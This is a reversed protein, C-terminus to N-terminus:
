ATPAVAASYYVMSGIATKDADAAGGASTLDFINVRSGEVFYTAIGLEQGYSFEEEVWRPYAAWARSMAQAGFFVNDAVAIPQTNNSRPVRQSSYIIVGDWMGAAGTFLPNNVGRERADRQAQAWSSDDRKLQMVAYPHMALGFVEEGNAMRIPEIKHTVQAYAKLETLSALTPRGTANTDVITNRSTAAGAFWKNLTPIVSTGNGSLEAFLRDDLVGALWKALQRQAAMRMDHNIEVETLYTWRVGHSLMAVTVPMQRFKLKEENGELAVTDGTIGAGTLALVLDINIQDGPGRSLEDKRIVPMGSGEPGEWQSWYTLNEAQAFLGAAWLEPVQATGDALRFTAM